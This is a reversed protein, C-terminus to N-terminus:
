LTESTHELVFRSTLIYLPTLQLGGGIRHTVTEQFQPWPWLISHGGPRIYVWPDSGLGMALRKPEAIGHLWITQKCNLGCIHNFGVREFLVVRSPSVICFESLKQGRSTYHTFNGLLSPYTLKKFNVTNQLAKTRM